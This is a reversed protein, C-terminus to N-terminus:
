SWIFYVSGIYSFLMIGFGIAALKEKEWQIPNEHLFFLICLCILIDFFTVLYQFLM